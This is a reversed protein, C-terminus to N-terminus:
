IQIALVVRHLVIHGSNYVVKAIEGNIHVYSNFMFGLDATTTTNQLHEVITGVTVNDVLSEGFYSIIPTLGTFVSCSFLRWHICVSICCLM